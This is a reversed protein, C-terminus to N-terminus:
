APPIVTFPHSALSLFFTHGDAMLARLVAVVDDETGVPLLRLAHVSFGGAAVTVAFAEQQSAQGTADDGELIEVGELVEVNEAFSFGAEAKFDAIAADLPEGAVAGIGMMTVVLDDGRLFMQTQVLNFVTRLRQDWLVLLGAEDLVEAPLLIVECGERFEDIGEMEALAADFLLRYREAPDILPDSISVRPPACAAALAAEDVTPVTRTVPEAPLRGVDILTRDGLPEALVVEAEIEMGVGACAGEFPRDRTWAVIRVADPDESVEIEVVETIVQSGCAGGSVLIPVVSAEANVPLVVRWRAAGVNGSVRLPGCQGWGSVEGSELRFFSAPVGNEYGLVLSESAVTFGEADIYAFDEGEGEGGVFFAEFAAGLETARFESRSLEPGELLVLPIEGLRCGSYGSAVGSVVSEAPPVTGESPIGSPGPEGCASAALMMVLGVAVRRLAM